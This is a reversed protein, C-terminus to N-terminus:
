RKQTLHEMLVELNQLVLAAEASSGAVDATRLVKLGDLFIKAAGINVPAGPDGRSLYECLLVAGRGLDPLGFVAATAAVADSAEYLADAAARPDESLGAFTASMTELRRDIDALGDQRLTQVNADARQVAQASDLGISGVRAALRNPPKYLLAM